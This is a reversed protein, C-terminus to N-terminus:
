AGRQQREVYEAKKRIAEDLKVRKALEEALKSLDRVEDKSFEEAGKRDLMSALERLARALMKNVDKGVARAKRLTQLSTYAM